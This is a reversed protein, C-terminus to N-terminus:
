IDNFNVFIYKTGLISVTHYNNVMDEFEKKECENNNMYNAFTRLSKSENRIVDEESQFLNMTRTINAKGYLLSLVKQPPHTPTISRWDSNISAECSERLVFDVYNHNILEISIVM